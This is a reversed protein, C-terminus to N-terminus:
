NNFYYWGGIIGKQIDNFLRNDVDNYSITFVVDCGLPKDGEKTTYTYSVTSESPNLTWQSDGGKNFTVSLM